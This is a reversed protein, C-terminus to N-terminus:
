VYGQSEMVSLFQTYKDNYAGMRDPNPFFSEEVHVMMDAAAEFKKFHSGIAAIVATGFAPGGKTLTRRNVRGTIDARCQMWADYKSWPGGTYVDGASNQMEALKDIKEYCMREFFGTGQLCSAFQVERNDTAPSIFGEASNTFFPFTEGKKANPYALYDTPLLKRAGTEIIELSTDKFWVKIWDAGTVSETAFFWTRDPLKSMQVLHHPYSILKKTIGCISIRDDLDFYFDGLKRAGSALFAATETATGMVVPVGQPLGTASAAAPCLKGVVEGLHTLRPLRERVGLHMDYDLWDPWNEDILDCGTKSAISFETVDPAGKLKGLVYDAQHVFTAIEYMEPLNDKVWAIKAIADDSRFQFGMRRCHDQGLMNLKPLQEVARSDTDMMAPCLIKGERDQVILIGPVGSVSIGRLQSPSVSASRLQSTLHGLALRTADWWIEPNQEVHGKPLAPAAQINYAAASQVLEQGNEDVAVAVVRDHALHVGLFIALKTTTPASM